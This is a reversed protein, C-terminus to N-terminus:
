NLLARRIICSPCDCEDNAMLYQEETINYLIVNPKDVKVDDYENKIANSVLNLIDMSEKPLFTIEKNFDFGEGDWYKVLNTITADSCAAVLPKVYPVGVETDNTFHVVTLDDKVFVVKVNLTGTDSFDIVIDFEKEVLDNFDGMFIEELYKKYNDKNLNPHSIFETVSDEIDIADVELSRLQKDMLLINFNNTEM